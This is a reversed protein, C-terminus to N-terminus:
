HVPLKAVAASDLNLRMVVSVSLGTVEAIQRLSAGSVHLLKVVASRAPRPLEAFESRDRVGSVASLRAAVEEIAYRPPRGLKAKAEPRAPEPASAILDAMTQPPILRLLEPEDLLASPHGLLHRSSWRFHEPCSVLAAEVPNNWIYRLVTVLYADDDVPKSKFRDQFLHGVRGHRHNFRRSYRVGLRKIVDGIPEDVARVLLHVHNPMLCYALIQCGSAAKTALLCDLFSAYDTDDVFIPDRNVGRLMVHHIGSESQQRARRPM